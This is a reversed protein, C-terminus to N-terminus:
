KKEDETSLEYFKWEKDNSIEPKGEGIIAISNLNEKEQKELYIKAVEKVDDETVALLQERRKQRQEDTIKGTFYNMGEESVSIPEDIKKFTSLKAEDIEQQTFKRKGVWEISDRYTKLTELTKPDRYSFFSFIGTSANYTAGGGYAGNRERIERHLYHTRMLSSLIQLKAGDPHTYPVGKFAQACFNVAFPLPFFAKEHTPQFSSQENSQSIKKEPLEILFNSLANINQDVNESGCTIAVRLSQKSLVYESIEKLKQIITDFDENAALKNMFHVQTMGGYIEAKSMTPILKSGAFTSAYQHGSEVVSNMMNTANAYIITRLKDVNDFNTECLLQKLIDYMHNINRDLSHSTILLGDEHQNLDSHNTSLFTSVNIGGTYLRIDDDIVAMTKSKTGLSTLAQAFLPLYIRLDEKLGEIKNIIRFYTIENTSTNRWQVPCKNVDTFKLEFKKTQKDIDQIKLSPLVSLDEEEEQKKLLEISQMYVKEKEESTLTSTKAELRSQEERLLKETYSSDPTMVSILTHPNNIFYKKVLNQFFPETKLKERLLKINNNIELFEAPNSGNFWGSSILHMLSLGFSATKHKISLETQHIAAEIRKSDFGNQSVDELVKNITEEALPVYKENMGQLGISMYSIKTSSDYGTNESFDSGINGDILAKYMPSAHGDLLLYSFIKLVFTEFTDNINNTLFSMSMKTQKESNIMPDLPGYLSIRKPSSGFPKVNKIGEDLSSKEFGRIKNNITALHDSLPFNGYTYFKANSPHYHTKHFQLLEQYTLDTIYKPDGGSNNGYTTGSFMNEQVGNYFLYGADSMVGKMENYVVGKFQLPTSKDNPQKHELRWGEQKFDLERLYPHFTADMYVDRLNDYDLKHTTSFPYITYDNATMANMFNALTRNLMKFFPDRVPFRKSGCLTTHELIHPTGSSNMPPTSFGVGFVNNNDDRAIHLHSAGTKEHILQTATLELEPIHNIQEVRFGHLKDNLKFEEGVVRSYSKKCIFNLIKNNHPSTVKQLKQFNRRILLSNM